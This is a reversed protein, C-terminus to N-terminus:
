QTRARDRLGRRGHQMARKITRLDGGNRQDQGTRKQQALASGICLAPMAVAFAGIAAIGM